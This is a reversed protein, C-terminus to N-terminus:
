LGLRRLLREGFSKEPRDDHPDTRHERDDHEGLPRRELGLIAPLNALDDALRSAVEDPSGMPAVSRLHPRRELESGAIGSMREPMGAFAKADHEVVQAPVSTLRGARAAEARLRPGLQSLREARRASSEVSFDPTLWSEVGHLPGRAPGSTTICGCLAALLVLCGRRLVVFAHYRSRPRACCGRHSLRCARTEQAHGNRAVGQAPSDERTAM